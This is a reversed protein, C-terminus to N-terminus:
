FSISTEKRNNKSYDDEWLLSIIPNRNSLGWLAITIYFSEGSNLISYPLKGQEKIVIGENKDLGNWKIFINKAASVGKNTVTIRKKGEVDVVSVILDAKSYSSILYENIKQQQQKLKKDTIWTWFIAIISVFLALVDVINIKFEFFDKIM